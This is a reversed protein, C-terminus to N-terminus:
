KKQFSCIVVRYFLYVSNIKNKQYSLLEQATETRLHFLSLPHNVSPNTRTDLPSWSERFEWFSIHNEFFSFFNIYHILLIQYPRKNGFCINKHIGTRLSLQYKFYFLDHLTFLVAESVITKYDTSVEYNFKIDGKRRGRM